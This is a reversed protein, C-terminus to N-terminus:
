EAYFEIWQKEIMWNGSLDTIGNEGDTIKLVYINSLDLNDIVLNLTPQPTTNWNFTRLRGTLDPDGNGSLRTITINQQVSPINMMQNTETQFTIALELRNSIIDVKTRTNNTLLLSNTTQVSAVSVHYSDSIYFDRTYDSKITVGNTGKVSESVGVSYKKNLKFNDFPTFIMQYHYTGSYNIYNWNFYGNLSPTITFAEEASTKDVDSSFDVVIPSYKDAQNYMNTWYRSPFPLIDVKQYIGMVSPAVGDLGTSFIITYTQGLKKGTSDSSEESVTVTYHKAPELPTYPTLILVQNNSQWTSTYNISPSISINDEVTSTDMSRSFSIVVNDTLSSIIAQNTPQTGTVEPPDLYLGAQFWSYYKTELNNGDADLITENLTITYRLGQELSTEPTFYYTSNTVYTSGSIQEGSDKAVSLGDLVSKLIVPESFEIIITPKENTIISGTEPFVTVVSPPDFDDSCATTFLIILLSILKFIKKM